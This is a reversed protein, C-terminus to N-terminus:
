SSRLESFPKYTVSCLIGLGMSLGEGFSFGNLLCSDLIRKTLSQTERTKWYFILFKRNIWILAGLIGLLILGPMNIFLGILLLPITSISLIINLPYRWNLIVSGHTRIKIPPISSLFNFGINFRHKFLSLPQVYKLHIFRVSPEQLISNNPLHWRSQIDDSYRSNRTIDWGGMSEWAQKYLLCCSTFCTNVLTGHAQLQYMLSTNVYQTTWDGHPVSPSPFGNIGVISPYKNRTKILNKIADSCLVVDADVFLLHTYKSNQVGTNRAISPGQQKQSVIIIDQFQELISLSHDTSGDNVIIIEWNDVLSPHALGDILANICHKITNEANFM